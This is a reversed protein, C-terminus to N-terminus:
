LINYKMPVKIRQQFAICLLDSQQSSQSWAYCRINNDNDNSKETLFRYAATDVSYARESELPNYHLRYLALDNGYILALYNLHVSFANTLYNFGFNRVFSREIVLLNNICIEHIDM